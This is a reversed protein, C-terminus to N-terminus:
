FLILDFSFRTLIKKVVVFFLRTTFKVIKNHFISASHNHAISSLLNQKLILPNTGESTNTYTHYAFTVANTGESVGAWHLTVKHADVM